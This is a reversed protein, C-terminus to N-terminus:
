HNNFDNRITRILVVPGLNLIIVSVAKDIYFQRLRKKEGLEERDQM